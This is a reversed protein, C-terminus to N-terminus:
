NKEDSNVGKYSTPTVFKIKMNQSLNMLINSFAENKQMCLNYESYSSYSKQIDNLIVPYGDFGALFTEKVGLKSLLNLAMLGANDFDACNSLYDLYNVSSNMESSDCKINSTTITRINDYVGTKEKYRRSNSFFVADVSRNTGAGNISIIYPCKKLIFDDVIPLGLSKGPAILLVNNKPITKMLLSISDKDDIKSDHFNCYLSKILEKDFLGRSNQPISVLIKSIDEVRMTGKDILYSAYNPHCGYTASLYYPYSYGWQEKEYIKNLCTDMITLLPAIDYKYSINENIYQCILETPLNGAGRGMGRVSSDIIIERTSKINIFEQASSFALQLNNHSHLGVKTKEDLNNDIISFIRHLDKPYLLGLTDVIYFAYPSIENISEALDVLEKDSYMTTGIPQIFVEYGKKMLSKASEIEEDLEGKHFSLRIGNIQGDKRVGIKEVDIDGLAIMAVYKTGPKRKHVIKSVNEVTDFVSTDVDYTKDEIFGCEIIDINASQLNTITERINKYGFNWRNVYGGDRLTCDLIEVNM